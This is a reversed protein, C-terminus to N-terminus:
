AGGSQVQEPRERSRVRPTSRDPIVQKRAAAERHVIHSTFVINDDDSTGGTDVEFHHAGVALDSDRTRVTGLKL